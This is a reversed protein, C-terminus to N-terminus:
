KKIVKQTLTNGDKTTIQLVYVGAPKGVLSIENTNETQAVLAGNMDYLNLAQVDVGEVFVQDQTPNPYVKIANYTVETTSLNSSVTINFTGEPIPLGGIFGVVLYYTKGAESDFTITEEEGFSGEEAVALCDGTECEEKIALSADWFTLPDVTVTITAGDGEIAYWLGDRVEFTNGAADMINACTVNGNYATAYEGDGNGSYPLSDVVIATDCNDNAVPSGTTFSSSECSMNTGAANSPYVTVFYETNPELEYNVYFDNEAGNDYMDYIDTGNPTTGLSVFYKDANAVEEYYIVPLFSINEEGNTPNIVNTCNPVQSGDPGDLGNLVINPLVDFGESSNSTDAPDVAESSSFQYLRYTSYTDATSGLFKVSSSGYTTDMDRVVVLLNYNHDYSFPQAFNFIMKNNADLSTEGAYVLTLDDLIIDDVTNFKNVDVNKMYIEVERIGYNSTTSTSLQYEIGTIEGSTGISNKPYISQSYSVDALNYLPVNVNYEDSGISVQAQVLMGISLFSFLLNKLM